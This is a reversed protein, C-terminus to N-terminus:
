KGGEPQNSFQEAREIQLEWPSPGPKEAGVKRVPLGRKLLLDMAVSIPIHTVGSTRNIWGYSNLREEEQARFRELDLPASVQLKPFTAVPAVLGGAPRAIPQWRDSPGPKHKMHALYGALLFHIVIAGFVLIGVVAFVWGVSADKHEYGSRPAPRVPEEGSSEPEPAHRPTLEGVLYTLGLLLGVVVFPRYLFGRDHNEPRRTENPNGNRRM